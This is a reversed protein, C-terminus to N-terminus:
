RKLQRQPQSYRCPVAGAQVSTNPLHSNPKGHLQVLKKAAAVGDLSCELAGLGLQRQSADRWQLVAKNPLTQSTKPAPISDRWKLQTNRSTTANRHKCQISNFQQNQSLCQVRWM